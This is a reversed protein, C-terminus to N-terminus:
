PGSTRMEDGTDALALHVRVVLAVDVAPGRDLVHDPPQSSAAVRPASGRPSSPRRRATGVGRVDLSTASASAADPEDPMSEAVREMAGRFALLHEYFWVRPADHRDSAHDATREVAGTARGQLPLEGPFGLPGVAAELEDRHERLRALLALNAARNRLDIELHM